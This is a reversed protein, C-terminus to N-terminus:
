RATTSSITVLRNAVQNRGDASNLLAICKLPLGPSGSLTKLGRLIVFDYLQGFYERDADMLDPHCRCNRIFERKSMKNKVHEFKMDIDLLLMHYCCAFLMRETLQEQPNCNKYHSCFFELSRPWSSSHSALMDVSLTFSRSQTDTLFRFAEPFSIRRFPFLLVFEKLIGERFPHSIFYSIANQNLLPCQFLFAAIERDESSLASM